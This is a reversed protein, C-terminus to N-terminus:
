LRECVVKGAAADDACEEEGTARRRGAGTTRMWFLAGALALGTCAGSIDLWVDSIQGSRGETFLQLTEDVLPILTGMWGQLVRRAFVGASYQRLAVNLLIGLIAYEAFHATKRVLHETVWGGEMGAWELLQLIM